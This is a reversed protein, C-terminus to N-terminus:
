MCEERSFRPGSKTNRRAMITAVSEIDPHAPTALAGAEVAALGAEGRAPCSVTVGPLTESLLVTPVVADCLMAVVFEPVALKFTLWTLMAPVPKLMDPTLGGKLREGPWLWFRVTINSGAVDPLTLPASVIMVVALALGTMTGSCPVLAVAVAVTLETVTAGDGAVATVLPV